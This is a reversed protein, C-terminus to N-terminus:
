VDIGLLVHDRTCAVVTILIIEFPNKTEFTGEFTGLTQIITGDFQKLHLASKKLRLKGLHWIWYRTSPTMNNPPYTVRWNTTTHQQQKTIIEWVM